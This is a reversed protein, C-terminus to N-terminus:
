RSRVGGVALIEQPHSRVQAAPPAPTTGVLPVPSSAASETTLAPLPQLLTQLDAVPMAPLKVLTPATPHVTQHLKRLNAYRQARERIIPHVRKASFHVKAYYTPGANWLVYLDFDGPERGARSRFIRELGALHRGAVKASITVDRYAKSPSYEQWIRPKIQYRSVEGATGIAADNDGTEIMSLAELKTLGARSTFTSLAGLLTIWLIKRLM